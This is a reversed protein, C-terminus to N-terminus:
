RSIHRMLNMQDPHWGRSPITVWGVCYRGTTKCRYISIITPRQKLTPAAGKWKQVGSTYSPEGVSIVAKMDVTTLVAPKAANGANIKPRNQLQPLNQVGTNNTIVMMVKNIPLMVASYWCLKLRISAKELM